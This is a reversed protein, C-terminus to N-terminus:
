LFWFLTFGPIPNLRGLDWVSGVKNCQSIERGFGSIRLITNAVWVWAKLGTGREAIILNSYFGVLINDMDGGTQLLRDAQTQSHNAAMWRGWLAAPDLAAWLYRELSPGRGGAPAERGLPVQCLSPCWVQGSCGGRQAPTGDGYVHFTRNVAHSRSRPTTLPM